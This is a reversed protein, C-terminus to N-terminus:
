ITSVWTKVLPYLDEADSEEFVFLQDELVIMKFPRNLREGSWPMTFERVVYPLAGETLGGLADGASSFEKEVVLRGVGRRRAQAVRSPHYDTLVAVPASDPDVRYNPARTVVCIKSRDGAALIEETFSWQALRSGAPGWEAWQVTTPAAQLQALLMDVSINLFQQSNVQPFLLSLMRASPDPHFIGAHDVGAVTACPILTPSHNLEMDPPLTFTTPLCKSQEVNITYVLIVPRRDCSLIAIHAGDLFTFTIMDRSRPPFLKVETSCNKWNWVTLYPHQQRMCTAACYDGFVEAHLCNHVGNGPDVHALPHPEGTSLTLMCLTTYYNPGYDPKHVVLLDQSADIALVGYSVPIKISWHREEIGRVVSPMQQVYLRLGHGDDDFRHSVLTTVSSELSWFDGALAPGFPLEEFTIDRARAANYARLRQLKESVDLHRAAPGECMAAVGLEIKYQFQMSSDVFTKLSRCTAQCSLISKYDVQLLIAHLLDDPLAQLM